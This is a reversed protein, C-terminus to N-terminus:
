VKGGLSIIANVLTEVAKNIDKNYEASITVGSDAVFTMEEGNGIIGEVVGNEDATYQEMPRYEEHETAVSGLEVQVSDFSCWDGAANDDYILLRVATLNRQFTYSQIWNGEVKAATYSPNGEDFVFGIQLLQGAAGTISARINKIAVMVPVGKPVVVPVTTSRNGNALKTLTYSGDENKVFCDKLDANVNALNKGYKKLVSGNVPVSDSTLRVAMEHELPSSDDIRVANGSASGKLANAYNQKTANVDAILNVLVNYEPDTSIDEDSNAAKEVKVTFSTSTLKRGDVDIISVDCIVTGELELMWSHLPVTATNDTNVEGFFSDSTGDNREANITVTSSASIPIMVGEDLFTVKLFRSNCDNQKAVIAQILNPKSVELKVEKIILAM